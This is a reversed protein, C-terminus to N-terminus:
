DMSGYSQRWPLVLAAEYYIKFDSISPELKTKENSVSKSNATWTLRLMGPFSLIFTLPYSPLMTASYM